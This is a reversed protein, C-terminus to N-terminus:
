NGSQSRAHEPGSILEATEEIEVVFVTKSLYRSFMGNICSMRGSVALNIEEDTTWANRSIDWKGILGEGTIEDFRSEANEIYYEISADNSEIGSNLNENENMLEYRCRNVASYAAREIICKDHVFYGMFIILIYVALIGPMLLSLEITLSGRSKHRMSKHKM